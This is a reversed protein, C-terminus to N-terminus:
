RPGLRHALGKLTEGHVRPGGADVSKTEVRTTGGLGETRLGLAAKTLEWTLTM